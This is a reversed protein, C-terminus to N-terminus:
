CGNTAFRKTSAINTFRRGWSLANEPPSRTWATSSRSSGMSAALRSWGIERAFSAGLRLSDIDWWVGFGQKQLVAALQNAQQRDERSYSIFIDVEDTSEM